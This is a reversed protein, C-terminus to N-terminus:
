ENRLPERIWILSPRTLCSVPTELDCKTREQKRRVSSGQQGSGALWDNIEEERWASQGLPGSMRTTSSDTAPAIKNRPRAANSIQFSSTVMWSLRSNALNSSSRARALHSVTLLLRPLPLPVCPHWREISVPCSFSTSQKYTSTSDQLVCVRQCGLLLGCM